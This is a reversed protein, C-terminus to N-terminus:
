RGEHFRKAINDLYADITRRQGIVFRSVFRFFPNAVWGDETVSLTSGDPAPSITITWTGGFMTETEKVRTVLRHPPVSEIVDVPVASAAAIETVVPWIAQPPQRLRLTGHAVHNRPLMAGICTTVVALTALGAGIILIWKM